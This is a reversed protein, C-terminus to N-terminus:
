NWASLVKRERPAGVAKAPAPRAAAKAWWAEFEALMKQQDRALEAQLGEIKPKLEKLQAVADRYLGTDLALRARLAEEEQEGGGGEAAAALQERLAAVSARKRAVTAGAEKASAYEESLERKKAERRAAKAAPWHREKFLALAAEADEPVSEAAAEAAAPPDDAAEASEEAWAARPPPPAGGAEGGGGMGHQAKMLAWWREFEADAASRVAEARAQLAACHAKLRKLEAAQGRYADKQQVLTACLRVEEEDVAGGGGGGGDTGDVVSAVAAKVRQEEIKTKTAGIADRTSNVQLALARATALETKMSGQLESLAAQREAGRAFTSHYLARASEADRLAAAEAAADVAAGGERALLPDAVAAAAQRGGGGDEGGDGGGRALMRLEEEKKRLEEELAEKEARVAALQALLESTQAARAAARRGTRRPRGEEAAAAEEAAEEAEEDDDDVRDLVMAKLIWLAHRTRAARKRKGVQLTADPAADQVFTRVAKHVESLEEGSLKTNPEDDAGGRERLQANEKRLREILATQDVEENLSVSNKIMAVRQAFRCTSISEDTHARGPHMTAVMVTRCNGGLSDRLVSTLMSNRYPIHDRGKSAKEHLALIVVELFHLSSNICLAEALTTGSAGTKAVRESGALDVLHLKSRRVTSGGVPRSELELTFICHSRASADNMSTASVERNTDGEFLLTLAEEESRAVHSSLGRVRVSAGNEEEVVGQVRPLEALGRPGGAERKGSSSARDLLDFGADNYIELYSIRVTHEVDDAAAGVAAFIASIARPIIGRSAYSDAGGTLTYTKGSGTQGYAFVTGNFGDVVSQVVPQAVRDFTEEQTAEEGLVGGFGFRWRTRKNNVVLGRAEDTPVEVDVTPVGDTEAGHQFYGSSRKCPRVRLFTTIAAEHPESM